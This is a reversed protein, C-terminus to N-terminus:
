PLRVLDVGIPAAYVEVSAAEFSEHPYLKLTQILLDSPGFRPGVSFIFFDTVLKEHEIGHEPLHADCVLEVVNVGFGCLHIYRPNWTRFRMCSTLRVYKWDESAHAHHESLPLVKAESKPNPDHLTVTISTKFQTNSLNWCLLTKSIRLRIIPAQLCRKCGVNINKGLEDWM